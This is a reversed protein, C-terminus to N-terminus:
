AKLANHLIFVSAIVSLILSLSLLAAVPIMVSHSLFLAVLGLLLGYLVMLWAVLRKFKMMIAARQVPARPMPVRSWANGFYIVLVGTAVM